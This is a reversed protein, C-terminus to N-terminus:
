TSTCFVPFPFSGFPILHVPSAIQNQGEGKSVMIDSILPVLCYQHMVM